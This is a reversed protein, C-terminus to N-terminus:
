MKLEFLLGVTRPRIRDSGAIASLPNAPRVRPNENAINNVFLTASWGDPSDLGISARGLWINEGELSAAATGAATLMKSVHNISGNLKVTYDDGVPAEYGLFASATVSSTEPPRSGKPYILPGAPVAVTPAGRVAADFKLDNWSFTGGISLGTSPRLTLSADFGPGSVGPSSFVTGCDRKRQFRAAAM